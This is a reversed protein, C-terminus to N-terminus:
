GFKEEAIKELTPILDDRIFSKITTKKFVRIFRDEASEEHEISIKKQPPEASKPKQPRAKRDPVKAKKAQKAKSDRDYARKCDSCMSNHGDKSKKLIGFEDIPKETQCKTCTKIQAMEVM